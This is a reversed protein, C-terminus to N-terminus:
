SNRKRMNRRFLFMMFSVIAMLLFSLTDKNFLGNRFASHTSTAISIVAIILWTYEVILRFNENIKAM